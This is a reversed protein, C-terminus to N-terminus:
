ICFVQGLDTRQSGPDTMSSTYISASSNIL